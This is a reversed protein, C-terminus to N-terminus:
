DHRFHEQHKALEPDSPTGVPEDADFIIRAGEEPKEFQGTSAAKAFAILTLLSLTVMVGLIVLSVAIM